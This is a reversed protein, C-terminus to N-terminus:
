SNRKRENKDELRKNCKDCIDFQMTNNRESLRVGCCDCFRSKERKKLLNSNTIGAPFEDFTIMQMTNMDRAYVYRFLAVDATQELVQHISNICQKDTIDVYLTTLTFFQM